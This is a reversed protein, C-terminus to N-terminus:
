CDQVSDNKNKVYWSLAKMDASYTAMGVCTAAEMLTLELPWLVVEALALTFVDAALYLIVRAKAGQHMGSQFEFMDEKLGNANTEALKPAGLKSIIFQRETGISIGSLDAPGPQTTAQYVSCGNLVLAMVAITIKM